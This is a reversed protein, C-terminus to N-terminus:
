IGENKKKTVHDHDFYQQKNYTDTTDLYKM